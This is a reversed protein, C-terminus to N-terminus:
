SIASELHTTLHGIVVVRSEEDWAYYIRLCEQPDRSNGKKLHRDTFLHRGEHRCWYQQDNRLKAPSASVAEDKLKLARVRDEFESRGGYRKMDVYHQAMMELADCVLAKDKYVSGALARRAKVSLVLRDPFNEAVWGPLEAYSNPRASPLVIQNNSKVVAELQEIRAQLAANLQQSEALDTHLLHAEEEAEVAQALAQEVQGQLTEIQREFLPARAPETIETQLQRETDLRVLTAKLDHFRPLQRFIDTSEVSARAVEQCLRDVAWAGGDEGMLRHGVILPHDFPTQNARNFGPRYTRCAGNFVSWQKDFQNTLEYATEYPIRFVWAMGGLRTALRDTDLLYRSGGAPDTGSVVIVPLSRRESEILAVLQDVDDATLVDIATDSLSEGHSQLDFDCLLSQVFPPVSIVFEGIENQAACSLRLALRLQSGNCLLATEAIWNRGGDPREPVILLSAWVSPDDQALVEVFRGQEAPTIFSDGSWASAPFNVGSKRQLWELVRRRADAMVLMPQPSPIEAELQLYPRGLSRAAPRSITSVRQQVAIDGDM